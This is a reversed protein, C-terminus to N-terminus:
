KIANVLSAKCIILYSTSVGFCKIAIALQVDTLRVTYWWKDEGSVDFLRTAWSKGFALRALENFSSKRGQEGPGKGVQTACRSLLYLGFATMCGSCVCSVIGPILGMAAFASPFALAGAGIVTNALNTVSSLVSARGDEHPPKSHADTSVSRSTSSSGFHRVPSRHSATSGYSM